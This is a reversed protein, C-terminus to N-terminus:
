LNTKLNRLSVQTTYTQVGPAQNILVDLSLSIKVLRVASVSIPLSLPSSTGTYNQDFYQFMPTSSSNRVDTLLSSTSQSALNYSLPSGTPQIIARYLTNGIYSYTIEETSGDNDVDSFFTLSSTGANAIPYAGNAATSAQRLETLMTKLIVQADQATEFSGSITRNESNINILFTTVAVMVAVFIAMSIFVEVLTFGSYTRLTALRYLRFSTWMKAKHVKSVK